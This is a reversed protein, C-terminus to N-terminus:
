INGCDRSRRMQLPNAGKLDQHIQMEATNRLSTWKYEKMPQLSKWIRNRKTRSDKPASMPVRTDIILHQRLQMQTKHMVETSICEKRWQLLKQMTNKQNGLDKSKSMRPRTDVKVDQSTHMEIKSM